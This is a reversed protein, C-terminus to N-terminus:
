SGTFLIRQSGSNKVCEVNDLQYIQLTAHDAIATGSDVDDQTCCYCDQEDYM